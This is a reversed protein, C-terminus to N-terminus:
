PNEQKGVAGMKGGKMGAYWLVSNKLLKKTLSGLNKLESGQLSDRKKAWVTTWKQKEKGQDTNYEGRRGLNKLTSKECPM